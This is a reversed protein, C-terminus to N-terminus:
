LHWQRLRFRWRKPKKPMENDDNIEYWELVFGIIILTVSYTIIAQLFTQCCLHCIFAIIANMSNTTFTFDHKSNM